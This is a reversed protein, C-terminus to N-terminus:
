GLGPPFVSGGFTDGGSNTNGVATIETVTGWEKLEPARYTRDVNERGGDNELSRDDSM